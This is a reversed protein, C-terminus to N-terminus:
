EESVENKEIVTFLNKLNKSITLFGDNENSINDMIEILNTKIQYIDDLNLLIQVQM